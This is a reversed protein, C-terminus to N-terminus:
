LDLTGEPKIPIWIEEESDPHNHKYKNGLIEFHPRKDLEYGSAPLWTGFIYLFMEQFNDPNGKYIFVAYLGGDLVFPEMGDPINDFSLVEAAAWKEIETDPTFDSFDISKYYVQISLLDTTARNKIENWRPMFGKWLKFTKNNSLSTRIRQGIVKKSSITEIRPEM